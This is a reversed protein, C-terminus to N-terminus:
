FFKKIKRLMWRSNQSLHYTCEIISQQEAKPCNSITVWLSSRSDKPLLLSAASIYWPNLHWWLMSTATLLSVNQTKMTDLVRRAELRIVKGIKAFDIKGSDLNNRWNDNRIYKKREKRYLWEFVELAKQSGIWTPHPMWKSNRYKGYKCLIKIYVAPDIKKELLMCALLLFTQPATKGNKTKYIDFRVYKMKRPNKAKSMQNFTYHLIRETVRISKTLKIRPFRQKKM